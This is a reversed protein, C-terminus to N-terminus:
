RETRHAYLDRLLAIEALHHILERHIHLVLTAMSLEAYPGEALGCPETLGDEGLSEVGALWRAVETDLQDLAEDAGAAYRWSFYDAPPGGFHSANRMALCGVVLHGIRWAITTVPAPVPAPAAFDITVEGSGGQLPASGTGRPRVNWAGPVPEWLYETDTLGSLRPRAQAQWHWTFQERLLENCSISTSVPCLKASAVSLASGAYRRCAVRRWASGVGAKTVCTM